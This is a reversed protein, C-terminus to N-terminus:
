QENSGGGIMDHIDELDMDGPDADEIGEPVEDPEYGAEREAKIQEQKDKLMDKYYNRFENIYSYLYGLHGGINVKERARNFKKRAFWELFAATVPSSGNFKGRIGSMIGINDEWNSPTWEYDADASLAKRYIDILDKPSWEEPDSHNLNIDQTLSNLKQEIISSTTNNVNKTSKKPITTENQSSGTGNQFVGTGDEGVEAIIISDLKSLEEYNLAFWRTKDYKKSNFNDITIFNQEELSKITRQITSRSWFPYFNEKLESTSQYTWYRGNKEHGKEKIWYDLQLLVLSENLGIEEAVPPILRLITGSNETFIEYRKKEKDKAM